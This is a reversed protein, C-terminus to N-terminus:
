SQAKQPRSSPVMFHGAPRDQNAIAAIPCQNGGMYQYIGKWDANKAFFDVQCKYQLESLTRM